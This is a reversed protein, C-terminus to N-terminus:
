VISTDVGESQEEQEAFAADLFRRLRSADIANAVVVEVPGLGDQLDVKVIQM